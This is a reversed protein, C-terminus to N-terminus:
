EREKTLAAQLARITDDADRAARIIRGVSEERDRAAADPRSSGAAVLVESTARCTAWQDRLQVAGSRLDAVLQDQDHQAHTKDQEHQEAIANLALAKDQDAKRARSEAEAANTALTLREKSYDRQVTALKAAGDSAAMHHGLAFAGSVIVLAAIWKLWKM